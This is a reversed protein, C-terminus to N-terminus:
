DLQLIGSSRRSLWFGIGTGLLLSLLNTIVMTYLIQRSFVSSGGVKAFRISYGYPKKAIRGEPHVFKWEKPPQQEPRSSWDWVWDTTSELNPDEKSCYNIYFGKLEEGDTAPETNPSNPPSKPSSHPSNKRTSALSVLASSQNSERQAERLLRLYDEPGAVVGQPNVLRDSSMPPPSVPNDGGVDVWSEAVVDGLAEEGILRPSAM